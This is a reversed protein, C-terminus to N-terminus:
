QLNAEFDESELPIEELNSQSIIYDRQVGQDLGCSSLSFFLFFILLVKM